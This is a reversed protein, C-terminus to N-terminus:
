KRGGDTVASKKVQEIFQKQGEYVVLSELKSLNTSELTEKVRANTLLRIFRESGRVHNAARVLVGLESSTLGNCPTLDVVIDRVSGALALESEIARKLREYDRFNQRNYWLYVFQPYDNKKLPM